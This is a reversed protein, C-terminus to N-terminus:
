TTARVKNAHVELNNKVLDNWVTVRSYHVWVDSSQSIMRRSLVEPAQWKKLEMDEVEGPSHPQTRRRYASGLGWLKATLDGGVLVSRAGVNGHICRQTHLYEKFTNLYLCHWLFFISLRLTTIVTLFLHSCWLWYILFVRLPLPNGGQTLCILPCVSLIQVLWLLPWKDQWKSSGRRLWTVHLSSLQTVRRHFLVFLFFHFM